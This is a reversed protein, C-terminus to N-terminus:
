DGLRYEEDEEDAPREEAGVVGEDVVGLLRHVEGEEAGGDVRLDAVGFVGPQAALRDAVVVEAVPHHAGEALNGGDLGVDGVVKGDREDGRHRCHADEADDEVHHAHVLRAATDSACVTHTRNPCGYTGGKGIACVSFKGDDGADGRGQEEDDDGVEFAHQFEHTEVAHARLAEVVPNADVIQGAGDVHRRLTPRRGIEPPPEVGAADDVGEVADVEDVIRDLLEGEEAEQQAVHVRMDHGYGNTTSKMPMASM